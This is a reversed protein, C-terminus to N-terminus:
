REIFQISYIFNNFDTALTTFEDADASCSISYLNENIKFFFHRFQRDIGDKKGNYEIIYCDNDGVQVKSAFDKEFDEIQASVSSEIYPIFQDLSLGHIKQVRIHITGTTEKKELIVPIQSLPTETIFEWSKDPKEFAIKYKPSRFHDDEIVFEELEEEEYQELTLQKEQYDITIKFRSLLDFGLVGSIGGGIVRSLEEMDAVGCSLDKLVIDAIAFSDVRVMAVDVEGGVGRARGTEVAKLDLEETTKKNITTCSAGTDLIFNKQEGNIAVKLLILNGQLWFDTTATRTQAKLSIISICFLICIILRTRCV